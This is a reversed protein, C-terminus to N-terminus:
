DLVSISGHAGLAVRSAGGRALNRGQADFVGSFVGTVITDAGDARAHVAPAGTAASPYASDDVALVSILKGSADDFYLVAAGVNLPDLDWLTPEEGRGADERLNVITAAEVLVGVPNGSGSFASPAVLPTVDLSGVDASYIGIRVFNRYGDNDFACVGAYASSWIPDLGGWDAGAPGILV